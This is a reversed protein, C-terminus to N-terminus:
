MKDLLISVDYGTFNSGKVNAFDFNQDPPDDVSGFIANFIGYPLYMQDLDM